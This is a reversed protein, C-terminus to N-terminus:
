FFSAISDKYLERIIGVETIIGTINKHPILDFVYNRIKYRHLCSAIQTNLGHAIDKGTEANLDILSLPVAIYFPIAHEEALISLSYTGPDSATDGNAAIRYARVIVIDIDEMMRDITDDPILTISIGELKLEWEAIRARQLLPYAKNMFVHVNMKEKIANRIVGFVTGYGCTEFSGAHSHTLVRFENESKPKCKQFLKLGCNGIGRNKSIDEEIITKAEDLAIKKLNEVGIGRKEELKGYIRKTNWTSNIVTSKTDITRKVKRMKKFFGEEDGEFRQAELALGFAGVAGIVSAGRIKFTKIAEEICKWNDCKIIEVKDPLLLQNVFTVVKKEEDWWLTLPVRWGSLYKTEDTHIPRKIINIFKTDRLVSVAITLLFLVLFLKLFIDWPIVKLVFVSILCAIALLPGLIITLAETRRNDRIMSLILLTCSVSIVSLCFSEVETMDGFYQFIVYNMGYEFCITKLSDHIVVWSFICIIIFRLEFNKKICNIIRKFIDEYLLKLLNVFVLLLIYIGSFAFILGYAASGISEIEIIDEKIKKVHKPEEEKIKNMSDYVMDIMADLTEKFDRVDGDFNFKDIQDQLEMKSVDKMSEFPYDFDDLLKNLKLLEKSMNKRLVLLPFITWTSLNDYLLTNSYQEKYWSIRIEIENYDRAILDPNMEMAFNLLDEYNRMISNNPELRELLEDEFPTLIISPELDGLIKDESYNSIIYIMKSFNNYSDRYDYRRTCVVLQGAEDIIEYVDEYKTKELESKLNLFEIYEMDKMCLFKLPTKTKIADYFSHGKTLIMEFKRIAKERCGSVVGDLNELIEKETIEKRDSYIKRSCVRIRSLDPFYEIFVEAEENDLYYFLDFEKIFGFGFEALETESLIFPDNESIGFYYFFYTEYVVIRPKHSVKSLVYFECSASDEGKESIAKAYIRRKEYGYDKIIWGRSDMGAEASITDLKIRLGNPLEDWFTIECPESAEWNVILKDGPSYKGGFGKEISMTFTFPHGLAQYSEGIIGPVCPQGPQNEYSYIHIKDSFIILDNSCGSLNDIIVSKVRNPFLLRKVERLDENLIIIEPSDSILIIEKKDDGDLDNIILSSRYNLNEGYLYTSIIEFESDYMRLEGFNPGFAIVLIEKKNDKNFDAIGGWQISYDFTERFILNGKNDLIFLQGWDAEACYAACIIEKKGDEEIDAVGFRVRKFGVGIGKTWLEEGRLNIVFVYAHCDDTDNVVSGNCPADCGLLIEQKGDGDIDVFGQLTPHPATPYFWEIEGSEYELSIVGRPYLPYCTDLICILELNGDEDADLSVKPYISAGYVQGFQVQRGEFTALDLEISRLLDGFGNYFELFLKEVDYYSVIIDLITDGSVDLLDGLRPSDNFIKSKWQEEGESDFVVVRNNQVVIVEKKGDGNIDGAQPAREGPQSWVEVLDGCELCKQSSYPYFRTNEFSQPKLVFFYLSEESAAFIYDGKGSISLSDVRNGLNYDWLKKGKSNLVHMKGNTTGAGIFVGDLSLDCVTLSNGTAQNWLEEGNLELLYLDGHTTGAVVSAGDESIDVDVVSDRIEKKFILKYNYIDYCYIRGERTGYVLYRGSNSIVMSNVTENTSPIQGDRSEVLDFVFIRGGEEAACHDGSSSAAVNRAPGAVDIERRTQGQVMIYIRDLTGIIATTGDESIDVSLVRKSGFSGHSEGTVSLFSYQSETGIIFNSNQAIDVCHIESGVDDSKLINGYSDFVYYYGDLCGVIVHMGDSSMSVASINGFKLSWIPNGGGFGQIPSLM